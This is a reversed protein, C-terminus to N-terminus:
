HNRSTAIHLPTGYYQSFINVDAGNKLLMETTRVLGKWACLHLPAIDRSGAMVNPNAGFRVLLRIYLPLHSIKFALLQRSLQKKKPMCVRLM